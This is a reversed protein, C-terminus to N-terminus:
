WIRCRAEASRVMKSDAGCDFAKAFAPMNSTPANVRFSDLPHPNTNVILRALEPRTNGEWVQAWALFFRQDATFGDIPAPAPKGELTKQYAAYAITLGGLDAISEGEVLKGNEHLGPEVEFSDFQKVICDGRAQFNKLDEPTWWNSLNGQADFKSGQDDFGHTLEHGIVAGMGGYNMADDRNPDYFPPQLIGAPFVIENRLSSYYANVTPPTMRWLSRDVPKGIKGLDYATEFERGHQVNEVYPGRNVHFASYDRWKDPYGIKLQIAALKKAAQERTAPSMWDLTALDDRLAAILNRVMELAKAKAEPPFAREVYFQGLAEGLQGDTAQVCRRWRPLMEKTGTLTKGYFNFNEEVFKTPLSAAVSHVFQWRLYVQWDAIPVAAWAASAEKFFEPQNVDIENVAPAGIEKLFGEWNVNPALEHFQALSMKHYVKDPDRQDVRNMSAKALRTEIDMVTKAEAAAAADSDGLLKFINTVHQVYDARLQKSKDDDRTYYDRDPLGLGGQGAAAIMQSSNKFDPESGIGFIANVGATQLRAVEAQLSASDKIKAIKAFEAELPKLGAAEIQSEDMCSAYFDGIKQRNSGPKAAKDKAAEELISHLVEQNHEQLETFSGWRPYAPPIPNSKMWGGDAFQYFDACPSVSRDLNALDFGRSKSDDARGEAAGAGGGASGCDAILVATSASAGLGDGSARNSSQAMGPGSLVAFVIGVALIRVGM